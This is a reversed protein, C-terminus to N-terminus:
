PFGADTRLLVPDAKRLAALVIRAADELFEQEEPGFRALSPSDVDLVGFLRGRDFLPVVVESRSDVDCAIHGPFAHVDPVRQTALTAAATGCVGKGMPITVCAPKGHFPGLQLADGTLLYFGVWNVDDLSWYLLAAANALIAVDSNEGECLAALQERVEPLPTGRIAVADAM